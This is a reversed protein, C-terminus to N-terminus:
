KKYAIVILRKTGVGVPWCTVLTIRDTNTAKVVTYLDQPPIIKKYMVKYVLKKNDKYIYINAGVKIRELKTFVLGPNHFRLLSTIGSHGYIISNGGDGPLPTGKLHAVGDKLAKQYVSEPASPINPKMKIHHMNLSPIDLYMLKHYNMDIKVNEKQKKYENVINTFYIAGPDTYQTTLLSHLYKTDVPIIQIKSNDKDSAEVQAINIGRLYSLGLPIFQLILLLIAIFILFSSIKQQIKQTDIPKINYLEKFTSYDTNNIDPMM